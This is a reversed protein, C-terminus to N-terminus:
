LLGQAKMFARYDSLQSEFDAMLKDSDTEFAPVVHLNQKLYDQYAQSKIVKELAAGLTKRVEAPVGKKLFFGQWQHAIKFDLGLESPTPVDPMSPLREENVTLLVRVKGADVHPRWLGHQGFGLPVHGGLVDKVVDGTGEYPVYVLDMQGAKDLDLVLRHVISGIKNGGVSIQGPSAKAAAVVDAFTKYPSDARVGVAYLSKEVVALFEFDSLKYSFTPLNMYGAWSGNSHILTYGDADRQMGYTAAENGSGGGKFVIKVSQGLVDPQSLGDAMIQCWRAAGSGPSTACVLELPREPFDAAASTSFLIAGLAVAWSTKM